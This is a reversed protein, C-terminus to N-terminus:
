LKYEALIDDFESETSKSRNKLAVITRLAIGKQRQKETFYRLTECLPRMSTPWFMVDAGIIVETEQGHEKYFQEYDKWDFKLSKTKASRVESNITLLEVVTDNGDTLM